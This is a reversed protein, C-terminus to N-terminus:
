LKNEINKTTQIILKKYLEYLFKEKKPGQLKEFLKSVVAWWFKILEADNKEVSKILEEAVYETTEPPGQLVLDVVKNVREEEMKEGINNKYFSIYLAKPRLTFM